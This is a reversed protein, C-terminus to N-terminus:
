VGSRYPLALGEEVCKTALYRYSTNNCARCEYELFTGDILSGVTDHQLTKVKFMPGDCFACVRCACISCKCPMDCSIFNTAFIDIRM